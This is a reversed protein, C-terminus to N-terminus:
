VSIQQNLRDLLEQGVKTIDGAGITLVIDGPQSVQLLLNVIESRKSSHHPIVLDKAIDQYISEDNIEPMPLEGASYLSCIILLDASDFAGAYHGMCEKARSYRHPQYAVVLRRDPYANKLGQLTTQIETPHHGYDDVVLINNSEGKKECRRQVGQFSKFAQRIAHEEIGLELALGFVALANLANHHGSLSVEVDRYIHDNFEVQFKIRLGNQEFHSGRLLNNTGFGYSIGLLNLNKLRANDGCWFLHKPSLVQDVFQHFTQDLRETSGYFSLHDDDINTIIAGFPQYRLLTGDSECAEAVFHPGDGWAGNANFQPILGGIAFSPNQDACALVWALLSSTTTKGHTGAVALGQKQDMLHALLDSRHLVLCGLQKAECYEPNAPDVGTAYVVVMGPKVHGNVHGICIKAGIEALKETVASARLDSGSVRYGQQLLIRALASMGIGGIGIFHYHDKM